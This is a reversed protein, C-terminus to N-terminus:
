WTSKRIGPLLGAVAMTRFTHRSMHTYRQISRSRGTWLCYNRMKSPSSHFYRHLLNKARQRISGHIFHNKKIARLLMHKHEIHAFQRRLKLDRVLSPKIFIDM